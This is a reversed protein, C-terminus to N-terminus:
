YIHLHALLVTTLVPVNKVTLEVLQVIDSEMLQFLSTLKTPVHVHDM